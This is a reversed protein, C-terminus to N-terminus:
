RIKRDSTLAYLLKVVLKPLLVDAAPSDFDAELAEVDGEDDSVGVAYGFSCLFQSISAWRFDRRLQAVLPSVPAPPVAPPYALHPPLSQRAASATGNKSTSVSSARSATQVAQLRGRPMIWISGTSPSTICSSHRNLFASVIFCPLLLAGTGFQHSVEIV